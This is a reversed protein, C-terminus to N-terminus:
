FLTGHSAKLVLCTRRSYQWTLFDRSQWHTSCFSTMFRTVIEWFWITTHKLCMETFSHQRDCPCQPQPATSGLKGRGLVNRKKKKELKSIPVARQDNKISVLINFFTEGSEKFCYNLLSLMHGNGNWKLTPTPTCMPGRHCVPSGRRLHAPAGSDTVPERCTCPSLMSLGGLAESLHQLNLNNHSIEGTKLTPESQKWMRHLSHTIQRHPSPFPLESWYEQRSFGM